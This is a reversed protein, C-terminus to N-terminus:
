IRTVVVVTVAHCTELYLRVTKNQNGPYPYLNQIYLLNTWWYDRCMDMRSQTFDEKNPGKGMHGILTGWIAVCVMYLPTIRWFRHFYFFFWNVRGNTKVLEKMTLYTVLFGSFIFIYLLLIRKEKEKKKWTTTCLSSPRYSWPQISDALPEPSLKWCSTLVAWSLFSTIWSGDIHQGLPKWTLLHLSLGVKLISTVEYRVELHAGTNWSRRKTTTRIKGRISLSACTEYIYTCIISLSIVDMRFKFTENYSNKPFNGYTIKFLFSLVESIKPYLKFIRFSQYNSANQVWYHLKLCM